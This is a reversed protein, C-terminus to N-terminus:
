YFEESDSGYEEDSVVIHRNGLKQLREKILKKENEIRKYAQGGDNKRRSMDLKAFTEYETSRLRDMVNRFTGKIDLVQNKTEHEYQNLDEEWDSSDGQRNSMKKLKKGFLKKEFGAIEEQKKKFQQINHM